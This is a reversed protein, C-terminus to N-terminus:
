LGPAASRPKRVFASIETEMSEVFDAVEEAVSSPQAALLQTAQPLELIEKLATFAGPNRDERLNAPLLDLVAMSEGVFRSLLVDDQIDFLGWDGEIVATALLSGNDDENRRQRQNVVAAIMLDRQTANLYQPQGYRYREVVTKLALRLQGEPDSGRVSELFPVLLAIADEIVENPDLRSARIDALNKKFEASGNKELYAQHEDMAAKNGVATKRLAHYADGAEQADELAQRICGDEDPFLGQMQEIQLVCADLAGCLGTAVEGLGTVDVEHGIGMVHAIEAQEWLSKQPVQVAPQIQQEM